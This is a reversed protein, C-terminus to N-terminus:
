LGNMDKYITRQGLILTGVIEQTVKVVATKNKRPNVPSSSDVFTFNSFGSM